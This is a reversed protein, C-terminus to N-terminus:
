SPPELTASHHPLVPPGCRKVDPGLIPDLAASLRTPNQQQGPGWGRELDLSGGSRHGFPPAHFDLGSSPLRCKWRRGATEHRYRQPWAVHHPLASVPSGPIVRAKSKSLANWSRESHICDEPMDRPLRTPQSSLSPSPCGSAPWIAVLRWPEIEQVMM